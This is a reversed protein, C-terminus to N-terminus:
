EAATDYTGRTAHAKWASVTTRPINLLASASFGMSELELAKMRLAEDDVAGIINPFFRIPTKYGRQMTGSAHAPGDGRVLMGFMPVGRSAETESQYEVVALPVPTRDRRGFSIAALWAHMRANAGDTMGSIERLGDSDKITRVINRAQIPTDGVLQQIAKSTEGMRLKSSAAALRRRDGRNMPIAGDVRGVSSDHERGKLSVVGLVSRRGLCAWARQVTSVTERSYPACFDLMVSAVSRTERALHHIIDGVRVDVLPWTEACEAAAIQVRDVAVINHPPVGLGTLTAVDGGNRSALVYHVGSVFVNDGIAMKAETWMTLRAIKKQNSEGKYTDAMGVM